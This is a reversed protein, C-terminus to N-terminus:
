TGWQLEFGPEGACAPISGSRPGGRQGRCPNGRVRPSLGKRWDEDRLGEPTGGCVRPYVKVGSRIVIHGAPEGACAPISGGPGPRRYRSHLNGRVRPSLGRAYSQWCLRAATGGCVRPYVAAKLKAHIDPRPEGACAPISGALIWVLRIPRLNGRVRPSLGVDATQAPNHAITGGCVRPYVRTPEGIAIGPMPEGACAPISGNGQM